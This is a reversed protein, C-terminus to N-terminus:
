ATALVGNLLALLERTEFPKALVTDAGALKAAALYASTDLSNPRYNDLGISGGGSIAIIRVAPFHSKITKIADVGSSKPMIVDTIVVQPERKLMMFLAEEPGPATEVEFGARELVKKLAGCVYPEDDIVM